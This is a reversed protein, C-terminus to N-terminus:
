GDLFRQHSDRLATRARFLQSKVASVSLELVEAIEEYPMQEYRRLVVALRQKEPLAGIAQDVARKMEALALRSDPRREEGEPIQQHWDGEQEDLSHEKRRQKRRTENFVLNRTITFLFTTFKATQKYRPASKWLRLFVQQAIDDAESANGLMKAVTGVVAHQHRTVLEEFAAHEGTAVRAMLAVDLANDDVREPPEPDTMIAARQAM